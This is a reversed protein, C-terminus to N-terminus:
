LPTTQKLHLPPIAQRTVLVNQYPAQWIAMSNGIDTKFNDSYDHNISYDEPNQSWTINYMSVEM